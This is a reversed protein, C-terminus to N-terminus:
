QVYCVSPVLTVVEMGDCPMEAPAKFGMDSNQQHGEPGLRDKRLVNTIGSTLPVGSVHGQASNLIRLRPSFEPGAQVDEAVEITDNRLAADSMACYRCPGM